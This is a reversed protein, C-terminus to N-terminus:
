INFPYGLLGLTCGRLITTTEFVRVDALEVAYSVDLTDLTIDLLTSFTTSVFSRDVGSNFLVFAYYNNLLFTGKVVNSDPNADGGGLVYAKGRAEGVDNKNRAKNGYNQDKLKPYDSRYYGQRGCEFCTVVRKNCKRCRMTCPREHHLKCKNCLPLLRNYPKRENNGATYVIAVNQGGANPRKFPPQHRHNDRPNVELRRKNEANKMAYGKLKQDMLNNAIRVADQLRMPEVAIVNWERAVPRSDRNNENPNGNENEGNRNGGNENDDDSDNLKPKRGLPRVAFTELRRSRMRDYYRFRHIQRLESETFSVRRRFRDARARETMMTDQLRANSRELSAVQDLLGDREGDAIMSMAELERYRTEIDKIRQLPIETVHDYIDQLGEKVQELREVVDPMLMGDPIDIGAVVDLGVEITGRDSSKVEDEVDIGVDVEIGIGADIGAKVDRDVVVEVATADAKIDELVDTDIDEEVSDEPSISDKFRCRMRSPGVFSEFFSDGASSESTTPPYMTSLPASRWRLCAESCRLTRLALRHSALPRVSNRMTLAKCPGGPHTRYLRGILIDEGPRILIVRRRHIMLPAVVPALPFESSPAPLIPATPIEPISTTPSSLRLAVTSRWRTLMADHPTPSVHREPIETDSESDDSCLFPSVMLAVSVLPSLSESPDAESSSHTDLELVEASSAVAAAGLEPAVPVQFKRPTVLPKFEKKIQVIKGTTEHILEPGTLQADGFEAWCVHSRCKRGYLEEFLAAKISAYYINNYSFENLSLHREWVNGFEIVCARLMDKLTQIIRESQGDTQLHYATSMDLHTGLATQYARWFKSTFRSDRECIISAPIRHRMVVEKLYLRIFKDMSDNEKMPLFYASKTLRNVIVWITDYGSPMRPLKTVFDMTINDWYTAIDAKMNPWWYLLKMDHYMKDSCPHVYYKSKYSEHMILTRLNGYCPLWIRNKSCLAEDARPEIKEKRPNDLERLNEIIMDGVDEADLNELKRAKTQAEPIEKPLYLSITM